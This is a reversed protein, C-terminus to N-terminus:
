LWEEVETIEIGEKYAISREIGCGQSSEWKGTLILGDCRKLLSTCLDMSHEYSILGDLYDFSHIPSIFAEGPYAKILRKVIQEVEYKNGYEDGTFPHAVYFIRM